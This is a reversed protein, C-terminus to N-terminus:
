GFIRGRSHMTKKSVWPSRELNLSSFARDDVSSHMESSAHRGPADMLDQLVTLRRRPISREPQIGSKPYFFIATPAGTEPKFEYDKGDHNKLTFVPAAKGILSSPSMTSSSNLRHCVSTFLLLRIVRERESMYRCGLSTRPAQFTFNSHISKCRNWIWSSDLFEQM